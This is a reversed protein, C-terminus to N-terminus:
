RIAGFSDKAHISNPNTLREPRAQATVIEIGANAEDVRRLQHRCRGREVGPDLEGVFGSM